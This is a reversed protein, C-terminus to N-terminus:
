RNSRVGVLGKNDARTYAVYDDASLFDARLSADAAYKAKLQEDTMDETKGAAPKKDHADSQDSFENLAQQDQTQNQTSREKLKAAADENAKTLRAIEADKFADKAEAATKGEIFCKSALAPDPCATTIAAFLDRELKEGDAKGMGFIKDHLETHDAKLTDLTMKNEDMKSAGLIPNNGNDFVETSCGVLAGFTVISGEMVRTNYIATGPGKLTHGNIEHTDNEGVQVIKAKSPDFRLSAEFPFGEQMQERVEQAEKSSQLWRGELAFGNDKVAKRGIGARQGTDHDILIPTPKKALKMTDLDFAFNGWYWHNNISGDYLQLRINQKDSGDGSEFCEVSSGAMMCVAKDRDTTVLETSIM